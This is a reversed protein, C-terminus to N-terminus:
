KYVASEFATVTSGSIQRLLLEQAFGFSDRAVSHKVTAGIGTQNFAFIPKLDNTFDPGDIFTAQTLQIHHFGDILTQILTPRNLKFRRKVGM